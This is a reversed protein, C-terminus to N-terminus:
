KLAPRGTGVLIAAEPDTISQEVHFMARVRQPQKALEQAGSRGKPLLWTTSRTSFRASLELLKGLPAFARATIVAMESTEVLELRSGHVTCNSLAFEDTLQELWDIRKRRSEVLGIQVDPRALAIILGPPGAGSGLDIWPSTERRVHDLLQLSDALHRQWVFKLSGSSVLNQRENENKLLGVFRDLREMAAGDCRKACFARAQEETEIM